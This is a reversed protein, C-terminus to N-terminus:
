VLGEYVALTDVLRPPPGLIRDIAARVGPCTDEGYDHCALVGGPALLKGAWVLDYEVMAEAHDGDIFVLGFLAGDAALAPLHDYSYHGVIAVRGSVGYAALNAVMVGRSNLWTHPDVSTIHAAGGLAMVVASYGYAAGVELVPQGDALRALEAAEAPTVSTHIPPGGQRPIRDQWDLRM